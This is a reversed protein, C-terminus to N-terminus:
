IVEDRGVNKPTDDAPLIDKGSQLRKAQIRWKLERKVGVPVDDKGFCNVDLDSMDEMDLSMTESSGFSLQSSTSLEKIEYGAEVFMAMDKPDSLDLVTIAGEDQSSVTVEEVTSPVNLEGTPVRDRNTVNMNRVNYVM